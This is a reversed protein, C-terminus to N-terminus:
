GYTRTGYRDRATSNEEPSTAMRFHSIGLDALKFKWKHSCRSGGSVVLINQPKIDQHWSCAFDTCSSVLNPPFLGFVQESVYGQFIRPGEESGFPEVTHICRLGDILQFLGEWLQIIDEATAPAYQKEFFDKLNGQDAFELIM